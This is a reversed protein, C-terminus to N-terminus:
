VCVFVVANEFYVFVKKYAADRASRCTCPISTNIQLKVTLDLMLRVCHICCDVSAQM